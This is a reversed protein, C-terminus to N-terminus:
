PTGTQYLYFQAIDGVYRRIEQQREPRLEPAVTSTVFGEGERWDYEYDKYSIGDVVYLSRGDNELLGYVPGYSSAILYSSRKYARGEEPSVTFLPRGFLPNNAIPHHDLLYYLTPTVDILFTPTSEEFVLSRSGAPLHIILPVRVVEPVINYAHGWRGHEGLSDGHDAALIVVSNDYLGTQKLFTIFEGFCKDLRHLRGAYPVDFGPYTGGDVPSRGDRNIVSVHLDQPQTYSFIPRPDGKSAAIKTQLESLTQCLNCSMTPRGSDLPTISKSPALISSLIEDETVYQRYGEIDVLKQLANM